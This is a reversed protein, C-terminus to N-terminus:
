SYSGPTSPIVTPGSSGSLSWSFHTVPAQLLLWSTLVLILLIKEILKISRYSIYLLIWGNQTSIVQSLCIYGSWFISCKQWWLLGKSGRQPSDKRWWGLCGSIPNRDAYILKTDELQAVEPPSLFAGSKTYVWTYVNTLGWQDPYPHSCHTANPKKEMEGSVGRCEAWGSM